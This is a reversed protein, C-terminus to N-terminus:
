GTFTTSNRRVAPDKGITNLFKQGIRSSKKNISHMNLKSIKRTLTRDEETKYKDVSLYFSCERLEYTEEDDHKNVIEIQQPLRGVEPLQYYGVSSPPM